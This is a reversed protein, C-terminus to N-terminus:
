REIWDQLKSPRLPELGTENGSVEIIKGHLLRKGHLEKLLATPEPFCVDCIAFEVEQHKM